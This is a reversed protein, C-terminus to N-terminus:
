RKLLHVIKCDDKWGVNYFVVFFICVAGAVRIRRSFNRFLVSRIQLTTAADKKYFFFGLERQLNATMIIITWRVEIYDEPVLGIDGKSNQAEIWGGGINQFYLLACYTVTYFRFPM